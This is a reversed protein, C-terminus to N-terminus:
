GGVIQDLWDTITDMSVPDMTTDIQIYEELSCKKCPQFLHNQGKLEVTSFARNNATRLVEEIKPLNLGSPVQIDKEGNMALVPCKLKSLKIAPDYGVYFRMPTACLQKISLEIEQDSAGTSDLFEVIRQQADASDKSSKLISFLKTNTRILKDIEKQKSGSAKAVLSDQALLLDFFDIAPAALLIVFSIKKDAAAVMPAIIGGESHGLLGIKKKDVDPRKRLFAVEARVDSAFDPVTASAYNGTSAGTGRDDCRLVAFGKRALHDALVLFPKHAFVTEDRDEPGSGTILVVVPYKGKATPRIFTGALTDGGERNYIRVEETHYPFPPRPRQPRNYLLDVEEGKLWKVPLKFGRQSWKGLIANSDAVFAGSFSAQMESMGCSISDGNIELDELEFSDKSQDPSKMFGTWKGNQEELRIVLRFDYKMFRMRTQWTGSFDQGSANTGFFLVVFLVLSKLLDYKRAKFNSNRSIM